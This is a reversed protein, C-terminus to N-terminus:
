HSASLTALYNRHMHIIAAGTRSASVDALTFENMRAYFANLGDRLAGSLLCQGKLVCPPEDCNVLQTDGELGRLADGLKISNAPVALILGGNRGRIATVLGLKGLKNAVKVLHNHPVDFQEAIEGVTIPTARDHQTLYMLLRLGFDSFRTLQM